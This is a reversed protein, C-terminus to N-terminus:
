SAGLFPDHCKAFASFEDNEQFGASLLLQRVQETDFKSEFTGGERENIGEPLVKRLYPTLQIDDCYKHAKWFNIEVITVLSKLSYFHRDQVPAQGVHFYYDSPKGVLPGPKKM